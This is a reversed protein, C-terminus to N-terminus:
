RLESMRATGTFPAKAAVGEALGSFASLKIFTCAIVLDGLDTKTSVNRRRLTVNTQEISKTLPMVSAFSLM